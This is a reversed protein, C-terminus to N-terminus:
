IHVLPTKCLPHAPKEGFATMAGFIGDALGYGDLNYEVGPQKGNAITVGIQTFCFFEIPKIM